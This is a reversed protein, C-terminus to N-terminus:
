ANGCSTQVLGGVPCGQSIPIALGGKKTMDVKANDVTDWDFCRILTGPVLGVTQLARTESPCRCRPRGM